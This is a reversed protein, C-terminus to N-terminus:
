ELEALLARAEVLKQRALERKFCQTFNNTHPLAGIDALLTDVRQSLASTDRCVLKQLPPSNSNAPIAQAWRTEITQSLPNARMWRLVTDSSVVIGFKERLAASIKRAGIPVGGAANLAQVERLFSCVDEPPNWKNM